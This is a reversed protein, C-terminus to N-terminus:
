RDDEARELLTALVPTVALLLGKVRVLADVRGEPRPLLYSLVGLVDDLDLAFIQRLGLFEALSLRRRGAFLRVLGTVPIPTGATELADSLERLTWDDRERWEAVMRGVALDVAGPEPASM